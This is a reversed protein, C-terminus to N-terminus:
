AERPPRQRWFNALTSGSVNMWTSQILSALAAAESKLVDYALGVGLGTNKLGMEIAFARADRDNLHLAKASGYGLAFGALNHAIAAVFLAPGTSLLTDRSHASVIVIYLMISALSLGAVSAALGLVVLNRQRRLWAIDGYLIRNCILGAALPVLIMNLISIMMGLTDVAILQGALARMLVPTVVPSVFTALTTLSVSLAVNGKALYTMVNSAAGGPCVGILVIGAAVADPFQRFRVIALAALPMIVYALATGVLLKLPKKFEHVFDGLSLTTGMGFMILQVSPVVLAKTDFGWNTFAFPFYLALSVFAFIQFTFSLGSFAKSGKVNYALAYFMLFLVIGSVPRGGMGSFLLALEAM